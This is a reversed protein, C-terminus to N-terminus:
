WARMLAGALGADGAGGGGVPEGIAGFELIHM